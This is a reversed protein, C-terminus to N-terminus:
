AVALQDFQSAALERAHAIMDPAAIDDPDCIEAQMGRLAAEMEDIQLAVPDFAEVDAMAVARIALM